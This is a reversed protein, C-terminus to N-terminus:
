PRPIPLDLWAELREVLSSAVANLSQNLPRDLDWSDGSLLWVPNAPSLFDCLEYDVCGRGILPVLGTPWEVAPSETLRETSTCELYLGVLDDEDPQVGACPLRYLGYSPGWHGNGVETYLRRLLLPFTFGMAAEAADVDTLSAPPAPM